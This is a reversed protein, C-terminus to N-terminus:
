RVYRSKYAISAVRHHLGARGGAGDVKRPNHRVSQFPNVGQFLILCLYYVGNWTISAEWHHLCAREARWQTFPGCLLMVRYKPTRYGGVVLRRGPCWAVQCTGREHGLRKKGAKDVKQPCASHKNSVRQPRPPYVQLLGGDLMCGLSPTARM